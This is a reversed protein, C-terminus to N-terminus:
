LPSLQSGLGRQHSTPRRDQHASMRLSLRKPRSRYLFDRRKNTQSTPLVFSSRSTPALRSLYRSRSTPLMAIISRWGNASRGPQIASSLIPTRTTILLEALPEVGVTREKIQDGHGNLTQEVVYGLLAPYRKSNCFYSSSLIHSLAERVAEREQDDHPMWRIRSPAVAAM